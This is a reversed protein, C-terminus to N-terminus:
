AILVMLAAGCDAATRYAMRLEALCARYLRQDTKRSPWGAAKIAALLDDEPLAELATALRRVLGPTVYGIYCDDAEEDEMELGYLGPDGDAAVLLRGYAPRDGQLALRLPKPMERLVAHLALWAQDLAFSPADEPVELEVLNAKHRKFAAATVIRLSALVGM